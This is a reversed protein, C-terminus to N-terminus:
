YLDCLDSAVLCFGPARAFASSPRSFRANNSTRVDDVAYARQGRVYATSLTQVDLLAMKESRGSREVASLRQRCIATPCFTARTFYYLIRRNTYRM